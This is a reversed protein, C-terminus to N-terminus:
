AAARPLHGARQGTPASPIATDAPPVACLAHARAHAPAACSQPQRGIVEDVLGPGAAPAWGWRRKVGGRASGNDSARPKTCPPGDRPKRDLPLLKLHRCGDVINALTRRGTHTQVTGDGKGCERRGNGGVPPREGRPRRLTRQQARKNLASDSQGKAGGTPRPV